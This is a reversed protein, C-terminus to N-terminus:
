VPIRPRWRAITRSCCRCLQNSRGLLLRSSYSAAGAFNKSAGSCRWGFEDNGICGIEGEWERWDAVVDGLGNLGSAARSSPVAALTGMRIPVFLFSPVANVRAFAPM